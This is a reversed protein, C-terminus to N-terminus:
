SSRESKLHALMFQKENPLCNSVQTMCIVRNIGVPITYFRIHFSHLKTVIQNAGNILSKITPEVVSSYYEV